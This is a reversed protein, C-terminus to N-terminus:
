DGACVSSCVCDWENEGENGAVADPCFQSSSSGIPKEDVDPRIKAQDTAQPTLAGPSLAFLVTNQSNIAMLIGEM